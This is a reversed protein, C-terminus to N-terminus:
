HRHLRRGDRGAVGERGQTDGLTAVVPTGVSALFHDLEVGDAGPIAIPRCGEGFAVLSPDSPIPRHHALDEGPLRDGIWSEGVVRNAVQEAAKIRARVSAVRLGDLLVARVVTGRGSRLEITMASIAITMTGITRVFRPMIRQLRRVGREAYYLDM